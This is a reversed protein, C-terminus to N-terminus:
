NRNLHLAVGSTLQEVPLNNKAVHMVPYIKSSHFPGQSKKMKRRQALMKQILQLGHLSIFSVFIIARVTHDERNIVQSKITLNNIQFIASSIFKIIDISHKQFSGTQAVQTCSLHDFAKSFTDPVPGMKRRWQITRSPSASCLVPECMPPQQLFSLHM